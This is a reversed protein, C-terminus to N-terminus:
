KNVIRFYKELAAQSEVTIDGPNLTPLLTKRDVPHAHIEVNLELGAESSITIGDIEWLYEEWGSRLNDTFESEKLELYDGIHIKSEVKKLNYMIIKSRKWNTMKLNENLPVGYAQLDDDIALGFARIRWLENNCDVVVDGISFGQEKALAAALEAKLNTVESEASKLKERLEESTMVKKVECDEKIAKALDLAMALLSEGKSRVNDTEYKDYGNM